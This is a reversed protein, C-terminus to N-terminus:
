QIFSLNWITNNPNEKVGEEKQKNMYLNNFKKEQTPEVKSKYTNMVINISDTVAFRKM